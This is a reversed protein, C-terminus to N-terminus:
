KSEKEKEEIEDDNELKDNISAIEIAILLLTTSAEAASIVLIGESRLTITYFITMFILILAMERKKNM